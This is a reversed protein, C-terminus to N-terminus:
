LRRGAYVDIGVCSLDVPVNGALSTDPARARPGVVDGVVNVVISYICIHRNGRYCAYCTGVHKPESAGQVMSVDRCMTVHRQSCLVNNLCCTSSPASVEFVGFLRDPPYEYVAIQLHWRNTHYCHSQHV